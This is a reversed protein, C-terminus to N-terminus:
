EQKQPRAKSDQALDLQISTNSSFFIDRGKGFVSSYVTKAVGLAATAVSASRGFQNIGIGVLGWGLVGGIAGSDAGGYQMEPGAGDTDYDLRGHLAGTLAVAALAPAAFRAPSSHSTAGGEDDIRV